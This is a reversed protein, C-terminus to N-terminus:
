GILSKQNQWIIEETKENIITWPPGYVEIATKIQSSYRNVIITPAQVVKLFQPSIIKLVKYYTRTKKNINNIRKNLNDIVKHKTKVDPNQFTQDIANLFYPDKLVERKQCRLKIDRSL